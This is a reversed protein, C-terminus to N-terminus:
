FSAFHRKTVNTKEEVTDEEDEEDERIIRIMIITRAIYWKNFQDNEPGGM